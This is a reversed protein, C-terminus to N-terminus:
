TCLGWISKKEASSLDIEAIHPVTTGNKLTHTHTHTHTHTNCMAVQFIMNRLKAQAAAREDGSMWEEQQLSLEFSERHLLM